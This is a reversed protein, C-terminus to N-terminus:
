LRWIRSSTSLIATIWHSRCLSDAYGAFTVIGILDDERGRGATRDTGLVFESSRRPSMSDILRDIRRSWTGADMSSSLDVVMMIAIGELTVRTERQPTRAAGRIRRARRAGVRAVGCSTTVVAAAMVAEYAGVLDTVFLWCRRRDHPSGTSLRPSRRSCCSGPDRLEWDFM